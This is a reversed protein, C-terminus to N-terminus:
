IPVDFFIMNTGLNRVRPSKKKSGQRPGAVHHRHKEHHKHGHRRDKHEGHRHVHHGHKKDGRGGSHQGKHHRHVVGKKKGYQGRQQGRGHGRHHHHKYKPNRRTNVTSPRKRLEEKKSETTFEGNVVEGNVVEGNAGVVEGELDDDDEISQEPAAAAASPQLVISGTLGPDIGVSGAGMGGEVGEEEEVASGDFLDNKGILFSDQDQVNDIHNSGQGVSSDAHVFGITATTLSIVCLCAVISVIGVAVATTTTTTSMLRRTFM